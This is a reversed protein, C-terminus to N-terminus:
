SFVILLDIISKMDMAMKWEKTLSPLEQEKTQNINIENEKENRNELM